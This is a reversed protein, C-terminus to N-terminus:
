KIYNKCQLAIAPPEIGTKNVIIFLCNYQLFQADNTPTLFSFPKNFSWSCESPKHCFFRLAKPHRRKRLFKPEGPYPNKLKIIKPLVKGLKGDQKILYHFKEEQGYKVKDKEFEDSTVIYGDQEDDEDEVNLKIGDNEENENEETEKNSPDFMKIYQPLSLEWWESLYRRLYKEIWNPKEYYLGDRDEIKFLEKDQYDLDPDARLLYRSIDEKKGLPVFVSGINSDKLKMEPFIKMFAESLGM